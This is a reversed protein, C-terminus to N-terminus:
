CRGRACRCTPSRCTPPYRCGTSTSSTAPRVPPRDVGLRGPYRRALADVLEALSSDPAFAGLTVDLTTMARGAANRRDCVSFRMGYRRAM